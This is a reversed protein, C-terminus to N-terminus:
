KKSKTVLIQPATIAGPSKKKPRECLEAESEEINILPSIKNEIRKAVINKLSFNIFRSIKGIISTKAPMIMRVVLRCNEFEEKSNFIPFISITPEVTNQARSLLILLIIDM